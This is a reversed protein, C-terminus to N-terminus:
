DALGLRKMKGILTTRRLGLLEAARARNGGADRLAARIEERELAALKERLGPPSDAPPDAPSAALMVRRSSLDRLRIIAGRARLAAGLIESELERVNGPWEYGELARLAAAGLTKPELEYRACARWLLAPALAAVDAQRERLPPINAIFAGLRYYLDRRFRGAACEVDLDRNTAAVIRAESSRERSRGIPIYEGRDILRLIKAQLPPALEGIEDLFLTGRGAAELLGSARAVAGTFAGREHGFIISEFLEAPLAAVNVPVFPERGRGSWRHISRAVLEKGVGSEGTILIPVPLRAARAVEALVAATRPDATIFEGNMPLPPQEAISITTNAAERAIPMSRGTEGPAPTRASLLEIPAMGLRAREAESLRMLRSAADADGTRLRIEGELRLKRVRQPGYRALAEEDSAAAALAERCREIDGAVLFMEALLLRGILRERSLRAACCAGLARAVREIGDDLAGRSAELLARTMELRQLSDECGLARFSREALSVLATPDDAAGGRAACLALNAAAKAAALTEGRRLARDICHRLLAAGERRRGRAKLVLAWNVLLGTPCTEAATSKFLTASLRVHVAALDARGSLIFVRSYILAAWARSEHAEGRGGRLCSPPPVFADGRAELFRRFREELELPGPEL